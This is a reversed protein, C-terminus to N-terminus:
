KLSKLPHHKSAVIAPYIGALIGLSLGIVATLIFSFFNFAFPLKSFFIFSLFIIIGVILGSLTGIIAIVFAEGLFQMLIDRGKAGGAMRIGIEKQREFASLLMVAFIGLGGISFTIFSAMKSLISVLHISETKTKAIERLSFVNFSEEKMLAAKKHNKKLLALISKKLSEIYKPDVAEVLVASITEVNSIRTKFTNIPVYVNNDMDIGAIDKGKEEFVGVVEFFVDEMMINKGFAKKGDFLAKYVSYGLICKREGVELEEKNFLRGDLLSLKRISFLDELAATVTTKTSKGLYAAKSPMNVVPVIRKAHILNNEMIEADKFNLKLAPIYDTRGKSVVRVKAPEAVILESGFNELLERTNKMTSSAINNVSVLMAIGCLIGLVSLITRQKNLVLMKVVIELFLKIRKM